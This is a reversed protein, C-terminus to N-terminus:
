SGVPVRGRTRSVSSPTSCCTHDDLPADSVDLRLTAADISALRLENFRVPEPAELIADISAAAGPRGLLFGQAEDCGLDSLFRRQGDTNVGEAVTQLGLAHSLSLTAVVIARDETSIDIGAVFSRDIKLTDFTFRRLSTLSSYGTGFDDIALRVGLGRLQSLAASAGDAALVTETVELQLLQPEIGFRQLAKSVDCTLETSRLQAPSLNVSMRLSSASPHMDQWVRLQACAQRLVWRGIEVISGNAEALHIFRGPPLLGLDPHQWRILAEVGTLRGDVLAFTPQYFVVFQQRDVAQALQAELEVREVVADQMVQDFVLFGGRGGRKAEYMAVDASRLVQQSSGTPRCLAAGGSPRVVFERGGVVVPGAEVLSDFIRRVVRHISRPGVERLLVAFEDGGMRAVADGERVVARLREAFQALLQDGIGHGHTDNVDKFNDLDLYVVADRCRQRALARDLLEVFRRRSLLGTLGDFHAERLLAAEAAKQRSVDQSVGLVSRIAGNSDHLPVTSISLEISHGDRHRRQRQVNVVSKGALVMRRLRDFEVVSELGVFPLRRGVAEAASWGFLAECAPNWLQVLGAEDVVYLALPSGFIVAQLLEDVSWEPGAQRDGVASRDHAGAPRVVASVRRRRVNVRRPGGRYEPAAAHMSPSASTTVYGASSRGVGFRGPLVPAATSRTGTSYHM